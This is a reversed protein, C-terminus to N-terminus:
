CPSHDRSFHTNYQIEDVVRIFMGIFFYHKPGPLTSTDIRLPKVSTWIKLFIFTFVLLAVVEKEQIVSKFQFLVMAPIGALSNQSPSLM